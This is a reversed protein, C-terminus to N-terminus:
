GLKRGEKDTMSNTAILVIDVVWGILFVGITLFWIIGTGIKGLYFRHIGLYGFFICLVLAVTKSKGSRKVEMRKRYANYDAVNLQPSSELSPGQLTSTGGATSSVFHQPAAQAYQQQVPQAYQPTTEWATQQSATQAYHQPAANTPTTNVVYQPTSSAYQPATEWPDQQTAKEQHHHDTRDGCKPCILADDDIKAGCSFCYM